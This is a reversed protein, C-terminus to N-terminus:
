RARATTPAREDRAAVEARVASVVEGYAVADDYPDYGRILFTTVGIDYYDLLAEAVKEPTGVLATTNGHAGTAAALPTCLCRDHVEGRRGRRAAAALRREAARPRAEFRGTPRSARTQELIRTARDWAEDETRASSRASRCASAPSRPRAPAAAGAGRRHARRRRRAARGVARLRRRAQASM